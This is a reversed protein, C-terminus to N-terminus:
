EFARKHRYYVELTLLALSTAYVRGGSNDHGGQPAWSGRAHGETAQSEILLDRMVHNWEDWPEGGYHHLVQTAYYWYYLEGGVRPLHEQLYEVGARLEGRRLKSSTYVRCLLGEAVMADTIRDGPMYRYGSGAKDTQVSDLYGSVKTFVSRPIRLGGQQASRLAIVQWGTVSTDGAQGPGYRWGGGQHQAMVIYDIARQAPAKLKPDKTMAYAECLAITAVGHAYLTGSMCNQFTGEKTQDAILWDLGKQVTNKYKGTKHTYGAGLFPLLGFGTGGADSNVGPNRCEGDCDDVQSFADLSWAGSKDQHKALWKLGEEVAKESAANGGESAALKARETTGRGEFMGPAQSQGQAQAEGLEGQEPSQLSEIPAITYKQKQPRETDAAKATAAAESSTANNTSATLNNQDGSAEGSADTQATGPIGSEQDFVTVEDNGADDAQNSKGDGVRLGRGDGTGGDANASGGGAISPLWFMLMLLAALLLSSFVGIMTGLVVRPAFSPEDPVGVSQDPQVETQSEAKLSEDVPQSSRM